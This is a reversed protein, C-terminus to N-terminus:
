GTSVAFANSNAAATAADVTKATVAAAEIGAQVCGLANLIPTVINALIWEKLKVIQDAIWKIAARIANIISLVFALGKQLWSAASALYNKDNSVSCNVHYSELHISFNSGCKANVEQLTQEIPSLVKNSVDILANVSQEKLGCLTFTNNNQEQISKYLPDAAQVVANMGQNAQSVSTITAGPIPKSLDIM